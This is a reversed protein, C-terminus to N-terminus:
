YLPSCHLFSVSPNQYVSMNGALAPSGHAVRADPHDTALKTIQSFLDSICGTM